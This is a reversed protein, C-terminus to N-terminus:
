WNTKFYDLYFRLIRETTPKKRTCKRVVKMYIGFKKLVRKQTKLSIRLGKFVNMCLHFVFNHVPRRNIDQPNNVNEVLLINDWFFFKSFAVFLPIILFDIFIEFYWSSGLGGFVDPELKSESFSRNEKRGGKWHSGIVPKLVILGVVDVTFNLTYKIKVLNESTKWGDCSM